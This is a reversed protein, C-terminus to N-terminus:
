YQGKGNTKIMMLSSSDNGFTQITGPLLYHDGGVECLGSTYISENPFSFTATNMIHLDSGVTYLKSQTTTNFRTCANILINGDSRNIAKRLYLVDGGNIDSSDVPSGSSADLKMLRISFDGSNNQLIAMILLPYGSPMMLVQSFQLDHDTLLAFSTSSGHTEIYQGGYLTKNYELQGGSNLKYVNIFTTKKGSLSTNDTSYAGTGSFIYGGDPMEAMGEITANDANTDQLPFPLENNQWLIGGSPSIMAVFPITGGDDGKTPGTAISYTGNIMFNGNSLPWLNYLAHLTRGQPIIDLPMQAIVDGDTNFKLMYPAGDTNTGAIYLSQGDCIFNNYMIARRNWSYAAVHFSFYVRSWLKNGNPDTKLIALKTAWGGAATNQEYYWCYYNGEDDTVVDGTNSQFSNPGANFALTPEEFVKIFTNGQPTTNSKKCSCVTAAVCVLLVINKLFSM